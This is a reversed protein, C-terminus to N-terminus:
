PTKYGPRQAKPLSGEVATGLRLPDEEVACTGPVNRWVRDRFENPSEQATAPSPSADSRPSGPADGKKAESASTVVPDFPKKTQYRVLLERDDQGNACDIALRLARDELGHSDKDKAEASVHLVSTGSSRVRRAATCKGYAEFPGRHRACQEFGWRHPRTWYIGLLSTHVASLFVRRTAGAPEAEDSLCCESIM